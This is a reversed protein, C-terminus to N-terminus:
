GFFIISLLPVSNPNWARRSLDVMIPSIAMFFAAFLGAPKGFFSNAVSWVALITLLGVLASFIDLSLPNFGGLWFVPAMLYYYFPPLNLGPILVTPGLLTLKKDVVIRKIILADRAQDYTFFQYDALKYFRLFAALGLILFLIIIEGRGKKAKM